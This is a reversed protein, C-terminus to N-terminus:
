GNGFEKIWDNRFCHLSTIHMLFLGPTVNKWRDDKERVRDLVWLLLRVTLYIDDRFHRVWDCSRIMYTIGLRDGRMLFQYYLSCPARGRHVVGTDEPFWVPLIAQRTLPERVLQDVVDNLDGYRYRIGHKSTIMNQNNILYENYQEWTESPEKKKGAWKPWYREMYNHNFFGGEMFNAASNGWPWKAWQIGPNIPYGCVREDFHDDAWPLNPKIQNRYYDLDDSMMEANIIVHRVEHMAMEPKKSTDVGQWRPNEVLDSRTRMFRRTQEISDEFTEVLIGRDEQLNQATTTSM